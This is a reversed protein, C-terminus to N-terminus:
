IGLNDIPFNGEAITARQTTRMAPYPTCPARKSTQIAWASEDFQNVFRYENISIVVRKSGKPKSIIEGRYLRRRNDKLAVISGNRITVGIANDEIRVYAPRSGGPLGVVLSRRPCVFNDEVLIPVSTNQIPKNKVMFYKKYLTLQAM